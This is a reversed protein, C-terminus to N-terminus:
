EAQSKAIEGVLEGDIVQQKEDGEPGLPLDLTDGGLAAMDLGGLVMVGGQGGSVELEVPQKKHVYPLLAKVLDVQLKLVDLSGDAATVSEADIVPAAHVNNATNLAQASAPAAPNM